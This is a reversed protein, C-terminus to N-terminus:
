STKESYQDAAKGRRGPLIFRPRGARDRIADLIRHVVRNRAVRMQLRRKGPFDLLTVGLLMAIIGPGPTVLMIFGLAILLLGLLNKGTLLMLRLLPRRPALTRLPRHPQLFYEEPLKALIIPLMVAAVLSAGIAVGTILWALRQNDALWDMCFDLM